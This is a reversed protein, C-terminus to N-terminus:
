GWDTDDREFIVNFVLVVRHGSEVRAVEHECDSWFVLYHLPVNAADQGCADESSVTRNVLRAADWVVETDNTARWLWSLGTAPPRRVTMVGGVLAHSEGSAEAVTATPLLMILTALQGEAKYADRHRVFFDGVSYLILKHLSLRLMWPGLDDHTHTALARRILQEVVSHKIGLLVAHMSESLQMRSAPIDLSSRLQPNHQELSGVGLTSPRAAARLELLQSTVLPLSIGLPVRSAGREDASQQVTLQVESADRACLHSTNAFAFPAGNSLRQECTLQPLQERVRRERERLMSSFASDAIMVFPTEISAGGRDFSISHSEWLAMLAIACSCLIVGLLLRRQLVRPSPCEALESM